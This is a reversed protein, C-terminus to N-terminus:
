MKKTEDSIYNYLWDYGIALATTMEAVDLFHSPNWDTFQAANKMEAEARQAYKGQGTMRYAYGLLLVRRLCERSVGLMRRGTVVRDLIPVSLISDAGEIMLGHYDRWMKDSSIVKRIDKETQADM